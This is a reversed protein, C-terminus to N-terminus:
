KKSGPGNGLSLLNFFITQTTPHEEGLVELAIALAQKLYARAGPYDGLAKLLGGLNNLSAATTPHVEGLVKRRIALAQELLPRAAPLAAPEM